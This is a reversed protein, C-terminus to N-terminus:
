SIDSNCLSTRNRGRSESLEALRMAAGNMLGARTSPALFYYPFSGGKAPSAVVPSDMAWQHVAISFPPESM